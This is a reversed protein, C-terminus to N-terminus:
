ARCVCDGYPNIPGGLGSPNMGGATVVPTTVTPPATVVALTPPNSPASPALSPDVQSPMTITGVAVLPDRGAYDEAML